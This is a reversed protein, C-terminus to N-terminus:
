RKLSLVQQGQKLGPYTADKPDFGLTVSLELKAADFKYSCGDVLRSAGEAETSGNFGKWAKQWVALNMAEGRDFAFRADTTRTAYFNGDLKRDESRLQDPATLKLLLGEKGIILNQHVGCHAASWSGTRKRDLSFQIAATKCGLILNRRIDVGGSERTRIGIDNEILINGEVIAPKADGIEFDIGVGQRVCVNNRIVTGEGAGGDLWIGWQVYNDRVLNGDIISHSPHHLKIGASEWRKKGTYLLRNNREVVNGRITLYPANYSATGAAGNDSIVNGEVLHGRAGTARGNDGTELDSIEAGENGLDLGIGNAFRIINGRIIWHKGSRTGVMGAQQWEPHEKEWFNTPYQNGCREFVFDEVVIHALQRKHPAFLRRKTTLEVKHRAPIDDAFRITLEGDAYRWTKALTKHKALDPEQVYCEDDVFVQGLNFSLKPDSKLYEREAEPKGERGYPTSSSPVRFPNAGDRHSADTFMAEDVKGAYINSSVKRWQPMWPDSGRVIAGHKVSSRFTIPAGDKGGRPPAIRERYIGPAVLVTDGAQALDAARQITRIPKAESGDGLDDGLPDVHLTAAWSFLCSACLLLAPRFLMTM